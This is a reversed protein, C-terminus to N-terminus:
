IIPLHLSLLHFLQHDEPPLEEWGARQHELVELTRRCEPVFLEASLEFAPKVFDCLPSSPRLYPELVSM